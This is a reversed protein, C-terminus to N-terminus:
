VEAAKIRPFTIKVDPLGRAECNTVLAFRKFLAVNRYGFEMYPDPIRVVIVRLKPFDEHDLLKEILDLRRVSLQKSRRGEEQQFLFPEGPSLMEEVEELMKRNCRELNLVSTSYFNDASVNGHIVTDLAVDLSITSVQQGKGQMEVNRRVVKLAEQGSSFGHIFALSTRPPSVDLPLAVSTLKHRKPPNEDDYVLYSTLTIVGRARGTAKM